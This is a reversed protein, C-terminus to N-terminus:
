PAAEENIGSMLLDLLINQGQPPEHMAATVDVHEPMEERPVMMQVKTTISQEGFRFRNVPASRPRLREIEERTGFFLAQSPCVTACMPKKGASTRDYCMDCKMMLRMETNMKPIGFPCALVCNNCAICHTKRATQVVGDETRKIADAPCVEACTPSECHMCIVPVTQTSRARDVYDLQIMSQGRHTDCESCGQVCAQCGICRGMDIFFIMDEPVPM